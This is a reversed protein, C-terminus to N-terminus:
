KSNMLSKPHTSQEIYGSFNKAKKRGINKRNGMKSDESVKKQTYTSPNLLARCNESDKNKETKIEERQKESQIINIFRYELENFWEEVLHKINRRVGHLYGM